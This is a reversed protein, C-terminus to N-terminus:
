GGCPRRAAPLLSQPLRQNFSVRCSQRAQGPRHLLLTLHLRVLRHPGRPNWRGHDDEKSLPLPSNQSNYCPPCLKSATRIVNWNTTAHCRETGPSTNLNRNPIRRRGRKSHRSTHIQRPNRSLCRTHSCAGLPLCGYNTWAGVFTWRRGHADDLLSIDDAVFQHYPTSVAVHLRKVAEAIDVTNPYGPQSLIRVCGNQTLPCSAWGEEIHNTLWNSVATHNHHNEDLLAILVNVDLLARM